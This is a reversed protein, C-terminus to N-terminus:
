AQDIAEAHALEHRIVAVIGERQLRDLIDLFADTFRRAGALDGFLSPTRLFELPGSASAAKIREALLPSMQDDVKDFRGQELENLLYQYWCAVVTVCGRFAGGKELSTRITPLIFKPIKAASEQIIRYVSDKILYNSFRRLVQEKYGPLDIGTIVDLTPTVERDMYRSLFKVFLPDGMVEDIYGYGKHYGTLGVLSHGGNILGIKMKEYPAVDEVFQAGMLEWAPRGLRFDDEIVWQHFAESAVPWRDRVGYTEELAARDAETTVPTIRDVMSNPFSVNGEVWEALDPAAAGIYAALMRHAVEGNKQINDCSQITLPLREAKRKKLAATLYGFVTRPQDPHSIDWQVSPDDLKFHNDKADFNYGGETITLTIIRVSPDAMKAIVKRPCSPALYYEVIAGLVAPREKREPDKIVLTYLGDQSELVDFMKKDRELLCIGCIGWQEAQGMRMLGDTYFGQHARHFGGVGVHVIGARVRSRDYEPVSVAGSLLKLNAQNIDIAKEM